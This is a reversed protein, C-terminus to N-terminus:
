AAPMSVSFSPSATINSSSFPGLPGEATLRATTYFWWQLPSLRALINVSCLFEVCMVSGTNDFDNVKASHLAVIYAHAAIFRKFGFLLSM